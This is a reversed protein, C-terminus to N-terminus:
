ARTSSGSRPCRKALKRDWLRQAAIREPWYEARNYVAMVGVMKHDLLKEIVHPAVGLDALRSAYTRRLDHPTYDAKLRRLAHSLVRHDRPMLEPRKRLWFRVLHTMPVQHDRQM